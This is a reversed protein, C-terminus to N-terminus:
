SELIEIEPVARGAIWALHEIVKTLNEVTPEPISTYSTIKAGRVEYSTRLKM